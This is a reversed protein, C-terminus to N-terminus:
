KKTSPDLNIPEPISNQMFCSPTKKKLSFAILFSILFVVLSLSLLRKDLVSSGLLTFTLLGPITGLFTGIAFDKQKLKCIGSCYGVLDFPVYSLRMFLVTLFGNEQSCYLLKSLFRNKKIFSGGVGSMFYKGVVFSINASINEGIITYLTGNWPGFLVGSLITLLSAPFFILSRFSYFFIYVVPGWAGQQIIYDRTLNIFERLSINLAFYSICVFALTISWFSFLLIKLGKGPLLNIARGFTRELINTIVV